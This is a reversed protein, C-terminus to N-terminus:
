KQDYHKRVLLKRITDRLESYSIEKGYTLFGARSLTNFFNWIMNANNISNEIKNQIM